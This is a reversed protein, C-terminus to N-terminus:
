VLLIVVNNIQSGILKLHVLIRNLPLHLKLHDHVIRCTNNLSSILTGIEKLISFLHFNIRFEGVLSDLYQDLLHM